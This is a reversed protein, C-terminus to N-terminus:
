VVVSAEGASSIDCTCPFGKQKFGACCISYATGCTGCDGGSKGDGDKLHCGCPFGKAQLGACCAQYALGCDGPKACTLPEETAVEKEISKPCKAVIKDWGMEVIAQCDPIKVKKSIETCIESTAKDEIMKQSAVECVLKEIEAPTPMEQEISDLHRYVCVSTEKDKRLCTMHSNGCLLFCKLGCYKKGSDHLICKPSAVSPPKDTPCSDKDGCAPACVKGSYNSQFDDVELEVEDSLCPPKAYHPTATADVAVQLLAFTCLIRTM